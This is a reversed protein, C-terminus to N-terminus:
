FSPPPLFYLNPNSPPPYKTNRAPPDLDSDFLMLAGTKEKENGGVLWRRVGRGDGEDNRVWKLLTM